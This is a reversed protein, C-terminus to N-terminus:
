VRSFLEKFSAGKATGPVAKRKYFIPQQKDAGSQAAEAVQQPSSTEEPLTSHSSGSVAPLAVSLPRLSAKEVHKLQFLTDMEELTKGKTEPVWQHVFLTSLASLVLLILVAGSESLADSIGLFLLALLGGAGRNVATALGMARARPGLPFVESTFVAPIPGFGVSFFSVYSCIALISLMAAPLGPPHGHQLESPMVVGDVGAASNRLLHFGLALAGLSVTMGSGSLLLLPRRGTRDQWLASVAVMATRCVGISLAAAVVGWRSIIGAENFLSHNYYVTTEVGTAQQFFQVGLSAVLMRRIALSPVLSKLLTSLGQWRGGGGSWGGVGGAKTSSYGHGAAAQGAANLIETLRLSAEARSRSTRLLVQEAEDTRNKMVLWRPSEPLITAAGTLMLAPLTALALAIRWGLTGHGGAATLLFGSMCGLLVGVNIFLDHLSVLFGRCYAPSIEATYLPTAVLAFGVGIGQVTRGLILLPLSSASAFVTAGALFLAATVGVTRRRGVTDAVLGSAAAGVVSAVSFTLGVLLELKAKSINTDQKIFPAM